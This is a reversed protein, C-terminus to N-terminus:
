VCWFLVQAVEAAMAVMLGFCRCFMTMQHGFGDAFAHRPLRARGDGSAALRCFMARDFGDGFAHWPLRPLRVRGDAGAAWFMSLVHGLRTM